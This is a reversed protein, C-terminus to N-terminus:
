PRPRQRHDADPGRSIPNPGSAASKLDNVFDRFYRLGIGRAADNPLLTAIVRVFERVTPDSLGRRIEAAEIRSNVTIHTKM